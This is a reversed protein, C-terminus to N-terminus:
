ATPCGGTATCRTSSEFMVYPNVASAGYGILCALHHIERAEGTEVVLGIQLRTGERVLHHHM